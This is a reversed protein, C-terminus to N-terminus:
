NTFLGGGATDTVGQNCSRGDGGSIVWWIGRLSQLQSTSLSTLYKTATPTDCATTTGCVVFPMGANNVLCNAGNIYVRTNVSCAIAFHYPDYHSCNCTQGNASNKILYFFLLLLISFCTNNRMYCLKLSNIFSPM